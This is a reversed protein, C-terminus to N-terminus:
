RQADMIVVAEGAANRGVRGRVAARPAAAGSGVELPVSFARMREQGNRWVRVNVGLYHRGEADATVVVRHRAAGKPTAFAAAAGSVVTLRASPTVTVAVRQATPPVAFRLDVTVPQGVAAKARGDSQMVAELRVAAGPKGPSQVAPTAADAPAAVILVILYVLAALAIGTATLRLFLRM